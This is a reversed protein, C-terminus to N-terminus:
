RSRRASVRRWRLVLRNAPVKGHILPATAVSPFNVRGVLPQYTCAFILTGSMVCPMHGLM